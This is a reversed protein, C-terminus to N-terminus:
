TKRLIGSYASNNQLAISYSMVELPSHSLMKFNCDGGTGFYVATADSIYAYRTTNVLDLHYTHNTSLVDQGNSVFEQMKMWIKQNVGRDAM